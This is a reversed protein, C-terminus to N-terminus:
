DKEDRIAKTVELTVKISGVESTAEVLDGSKLGLESAAKASMWLTPEDQYKHLLRNNQTGMQTHQAVKGSLLHFAGPKPQPPDEWVPLPDFKGAELTSSYLEIKGSPTNWKLEADAEESVPMQAYGQLRVQELPIGLPALQQNLYDKEDTYQFFDALGLRTGLEKYIM